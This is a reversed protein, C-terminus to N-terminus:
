VDMGGFVENGSLRTETELSVEFLSANGADRSIVLLRGAKEVGIFAAPGESDEAVIIVTYKSRSDRDLIDSFGRAHGTKIIRDGERLKRFVLPMRACFVSPPEADALSGADRVRILLGGGRARGLVSGKLTYFGTKKILLSFGREWQHRAGNELTIFGDRRTFRVSGLNISATSGAAARRVVARRPVQRNLEERDKKVPGQTALMDAGAFIAEERVIPPANFFDTEWLRLFADKGSPVGGPVREWPLRNQAEAALFAATLTQTEGLAPLSSRWSPFYNDLLPILKHRIRNRLFRIDANTSDTRYPLGREELYALVDQRTFDLLPRKIRGRTRPMLALGGPGSGRLIRMLLTELVDDRTHATLIWDAGIRRLERHLARLRFIRAAGEIGPGGSAALSAIKGPAVSIVRCPVDLKGCLDEVAKADGRSEDAPRIGHEVHVCHLSFGGGARLAALGALMATSDAGGSVAALYVKGAQPMGLASSLRTEFTFM